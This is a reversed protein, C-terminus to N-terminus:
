LTSYNNQPHLSPLTAREPITIGTLASCGCFAYEGIHTVSDPIIVKELTKCYEFAHAPIETVGDPVTYETYQYYDVVKNYQGLAEYCEMVKDKADSFDDLEQFIEIAEEYEGAEMRAVGEDYVTQHLASEMTDVVLSPQFAFTCLVSFPIACVVVAIVAIIIRATRNGKPDHPGKRKPANNPTEQPVDHSSEQQVRATKVPVDQMSFLQLEGGCADCATKTEGDPVECPKGCSKCIFISM